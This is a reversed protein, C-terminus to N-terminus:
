AARGGRRRIATHLLTAKYEELAKRSRYKRKRIHVVAPFGMSPDKDWRSLTMPCINFEGCVVSDPVMQDPADATADASGAIKKGSVEPRPM